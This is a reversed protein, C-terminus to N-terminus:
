SGAPGALHVLIERRVRLAEAIAASASGLLLTLDARAATVAIWFHGDEQPHFVLEGGASEATRRDLNINWHLEM